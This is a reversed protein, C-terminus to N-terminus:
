LAFAVGGGLIFRAGDGAGTIDRVAPTIVLPFNEFPAISVGAALDQGTWELVASIPRSIRVGVSGFANLGSPDVGRIAADQLTSESLFQGGGIGATVAVRSFPQNIDDKVRFIKSAVAYYSNKPYDFAVGRGNGINIDAIRNWGIAVATDENLRKHIKANFAGSGFSQSTGFSYMSYSLEVGVSKVADGLGIGVGLEGDASGTFRTRSQFSFAAFGLNNDAGFGTPNSISFGPSVKPQYYDVNSGTPQRLNNLQNQLDEIEGNSPATPAPTLEPPPPPTQNSPLTPEPIAPTQALDITRSPNPNNRLVNSAFLNGLDTPTNEKTDIAPNDTEKDPTPAAHSEGTGLLSMSLGCGLYWFLRKM